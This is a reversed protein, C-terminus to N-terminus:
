LIESREVLRLLEDQRVVVKRGIRFARLRGTHIFKDITQPSCDVFEAARLRGLYDSRTRLLGHPPPSLSRCTGVGAQVRRVESLLYGRCKPVAGKCKCPRAAGANFRRLYQRDRTREPDYCLLGCTGVMRLWNARRFISALQCSHTLALIPIKATTCPPPNTPSKPKYVVLSPARIDRVSRVSM